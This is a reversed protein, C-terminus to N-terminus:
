WQVKGAVLQAAEIIMPTSSVSCLPDCCNGVSQADIAPQRFNLLNAWFGFSSEDGGRAKSIALQMSEAIACDSCCGDQRLPLLLELELVRQEHRM